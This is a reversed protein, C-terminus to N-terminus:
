RKKFVDLASNAMKLGKQSPLPSTSPQVVPRAAMEERRTAQAKQIQADLRAGREVHAAGNTPVAIDKGRSVEIGGQKVIAM